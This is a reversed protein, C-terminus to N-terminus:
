RPNFPQIYRKRGEKFLVKEGILILKMDNLLIDLPFSPELQHRLVFDGLWTGWSAYSIGVYILLDMSARWHEFDEFATEMLEASLHSYAELASMRHIWANAERPEVDFSGKKKVLRQACGSAAAAFVGSGASVVMARERAFASRSARSHGEGIGGLVADGDLELGQFHLQGHPSTKVFDLDMREASFGESDTEVLFATLEKKGDAAEGTSAVVVLLDAVPGDTTYLKTGDMVFGEGSRKATTEIGAPHAGARPESVAAAGVWEGSVLRPIYKKKQQETGFLEVSKICLAHHTIWSLTLGMDCGDHAFRRVAEGLFRPSGGTGGLDQGVTIGFLGLEGMSRWLERSFEGSSYRDELTGLVRDSAFRGIEDLTPTM